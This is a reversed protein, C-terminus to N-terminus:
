QNPFNKSSKKCLHIKKGLVYLKNRANAGLPGLKEFLFQVDSRSLIQQSMIRIFVNVSTTKVHDAFNGFIHREDLQFPFNQLKLLNTFSATLTQNPYKGISPLIDLQHPKFTQFKYCFTIFGIDFINNESFRRKEVSLVIYNM